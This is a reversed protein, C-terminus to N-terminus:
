FARGIGIIWRFKFYSDESAPIQNLFFPMDFRVTLPKITETWPGWKKISLSSGIGADMRFQAPIIRRGESIANAVGGDAFLYLDVHLWNRTISPRWPILEDFDLEINASMGSNTLFTLYQKGEKEFPALYGSYGRLNLGGGQHFHSLYGGLSTVFEPFFGYCRTFPNEMLEEPSAGALYLASERPLRLGSGYMAFLRTRLEWRWLKHKHHNEISIQQFDPRTGPIGTRLKL